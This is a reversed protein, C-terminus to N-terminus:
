LSVNKNYPYKPYFIKTNHMTRHAYTRAPKKRTDHTTRHTFNKFTRTRDTIFTRALGSKLVIVTTKRKLQDQNM